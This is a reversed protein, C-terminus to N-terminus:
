TRSRGYIGGAKMVAEKLGHAGYGSNKPDDLNRWRETSPWFDFRTENVRFHKSQHSVQRYPVGLEDLVKLM